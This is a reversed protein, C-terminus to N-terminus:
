PYLTPNVAHWCVESFTNPLDVESLQQDPEKKFLCTVITHHITCVHDICSAGQKEVSGQCPVQFRGGHIWWPKAAVFAMWRPSNFELIRPEQHQDSLCLVQRLCLSALSSNSRSYKVKSNITNLVCCYACVCACLDVYLIFQICYIYWLWIVFAAVVPSARVAPM